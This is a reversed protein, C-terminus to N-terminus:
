EMLTRYMQTQLVAIVVPVILVLGGISITGLVLALLVAGQVIVTQVPFRWALRASEALLRLPNDIPRAALLVGWYNSFVLMLLLGLQCLASFLINQVSSGLLLVGIIGILPVLAKAGGLGRARLLDWVQYVHLTEHQAALRVMGYLVVTAPACAILTYGILIVRVAAPLETWGFAILLPIWQLAWFVNLVIMRELQDAILAFASWLPSRESTDFGTDDLFPM